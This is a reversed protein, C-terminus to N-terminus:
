LFRVMLAGAVLLGAGAIRGLTIERVALGMFGSRDVLMGAILQGTVALAMVTGAGLQPTLVITSTVYILGLVGGAVFLWPAPASWHITVGGATSAFLTILTLIILGAGFSVLTAAFPFGLDTGLRANIPAQVGICAGSIVGMIILLIAM